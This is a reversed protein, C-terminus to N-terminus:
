SYSEFNSGILSQYLIIFEVSPKNKKTRLSDIGPIGKTYGAPWFGFARCCFFFFSLCQKKTWTKWSMKPVKRKTFTTQLLQPQHNTWLHEQYQFGMKKTAWGCNTLQKNGTRQATEWDPGRIGWYINPVRRSVLLFLFEFTITLHCTM